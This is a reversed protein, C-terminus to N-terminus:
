AQAEDPKEWYRRTIRDVYAVLNAKGHAHKSIPSDGPFALVNAMSGFLAADYSTPTDGLLYPKDGLIAALADVDAKGHAHVNEATHRAVGQAWAQRLTDKRIMGVILGGIVPPVISKFQPALEAFARDDAWRTYLVPWYLSEECTRRVLHGLAHQAPTLQGDLPDGHKKKLYELILGSDGRAVDDQTIYPIKKTPAKRPDGLKTKYAVDTMRLYTKLKLCAPSFDPVGFAAWGGHVTLDSM